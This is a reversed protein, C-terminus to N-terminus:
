FWLGLTIDETGSAVSLLLQAGANEMAFHKESGAAHAVPDEDPATEYLIDGTGDRLLDVQYIYSASDNGWVISAENLLTLVTKPTTGVAVKKQRYRGAVTRETLGM